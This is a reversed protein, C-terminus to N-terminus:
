ESEKRTWKCYYLHGYVMTAYNTEYYESLGSFPNYRVRLFRHCHCEPWVAHGLVGGQGLNACNSCLQGKRSMLMTKLRSM